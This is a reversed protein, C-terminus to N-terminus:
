GEEVGLQILAARACERVLPVRVDGHEVVFGDEKAAELVPIAEPIGLFGLMRAAYARVYGDQDREVLDVLPEFVDTKGWYALVMYLYAAYSQPVDEPELAARLPDEIQPGIEALGLLFYARKLNFSVAELSQPDGEEGWGRERLEAPSLLCERKLANLLYPAAESAQRRGLQVAASVRQQWKQSELDDVLRQIDADLRESEQPLPTGAAESTNDETDVSTTEIGQDQSVATGCGGVGLLLICCAALVLERYAM